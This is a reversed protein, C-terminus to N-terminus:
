PSPLPTYFQNVSIKTLRFDTLRNKQEFFESGYSFRFNRNVPEETRKVLKETRNNTLRKCIIFFM